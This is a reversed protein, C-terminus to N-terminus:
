SRRLKLNLKSHLQSHATQESMKEREKEVSKGEAWYGALFLKTLNELAARKQDIAEKAASMVSLNYVAQNLEELADKYEKELSIISNVSSETVKELGYDKPNSRIKLDLQARVLEVKQKARDRELIAQSYEMSWKSFIIPQKLWEGDLDYKDIILDDKFQTL